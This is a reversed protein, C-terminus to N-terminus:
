VGDENQTLDKPRWVLCPKREAEWNKPEPNSRKHRKWAESRVDKLFWMMRFQANAPYVRVLSAPDALSPSCKAMGSKADGAESMAAEKRSKWAHGASYNTATVRTNQINKTSQNAVLFATVLPNTLVYTMTM